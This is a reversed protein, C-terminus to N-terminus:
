KEARGKPRTAAELTVAAMLVAGTVIYRVSSSVSLLNMGNTISGIVLAGLLASWVSGRGGFLSTGAIVPGAIASLLLDSGGSSQNVALLRSAALIGGAAALSSSLVFVTVRVRNIRIGSRRAAEDNGGTAFLHRGFRTQETIYWFLLALGMVILIALPLGRDRNFIVVAALTVAAIVAFRIILGRASGVQLGARHRRARAVAMLGGTVVIAAVAVIWGVLPSFFTSTLDTVFGDPLNVTGTDGLVYLQLGLWTLLGALTIVFSPIGFRTIMFGTFLGILAGAGIAIVVAWGQGLDRDVILVAMIAACLGSVSGISLDIEGLLLVLVVGISITAVAANQLMLNTLNAATLFNSNAFQFFIWIAAIMLIVLLSGARGEAIMRGLNRLAGGPRSDVPSAPPATQKPAPAAPQPAAVGPTQPKDSM